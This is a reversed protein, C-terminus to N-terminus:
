GGRGVGEELEVAPACGGPSWAEAGAPGKSSTSKGVDRVESHELVMDLPVKEVFGDQSRTGGASTGEGEKSGCCCLTERAGPVAQIPVPRAGREGEGVLLGPAGAPCLRGESPAGKGPTWVAPQNLAMTWKASYSVKVQLHLCALTAQIGLKHAQCREPAM